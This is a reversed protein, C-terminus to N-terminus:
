SYIEKLDTIIDVPFWENPFFGCPLTSPNEKGGLLRELANRKGEGLFLLYTKAQKAVRRFGKYTVTLREPPPKPSTDIRAIDPTNMADLVPYSGPFLSAIHGDEGVGLYLLDLVGDNEVFPKDLTPLLLQDKSLIGSSFANQLGVNLLTDENKDGSIREDVLYLHIRKLIEPANCLLGQIIPAASRGGALGIRIIGGHAAAVRSVHECILPTLADLGQIPIKKMEPIYV